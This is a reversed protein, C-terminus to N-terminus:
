IVELDGVDEPSDAYLDVLAESDRWTAERFRVPGNLLREQSEVLKAVQDAGMGDNGLWAQVDARPVRADLTRQLLGDPWCRAKAARALDEPVPVPTAFISHEELM